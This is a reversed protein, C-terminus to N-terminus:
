REAWENRRMEDVTECQAPTLFAAVPLAGGYIHDTPVIRGQKSLAGRIQNIVIKGPDTM